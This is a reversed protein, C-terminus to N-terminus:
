EDRDVPTKVNCSPCTAKGMDGQYSWEYGCNHCEVTTM